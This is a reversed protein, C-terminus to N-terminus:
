EHNRDTQLCPSGIPHSSRSHTQTDFWGIQPVFQELKKSRRRAEGHLVARVFDLHVHEVADALAM